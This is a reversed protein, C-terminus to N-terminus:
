RKHGRVNRGQLASTYIARLTRGVVETSRTDAHFARGSEGIRTALAPDELLQTIREALALADGVPVLLQTGNALQPIGGVPTSVFPRGASLAETLIMPMGENRSPLVIVRAKHLLASIEKASVPPAVTMGDLQPVALRTRPGVLMCTAAPRRASVMPWAQCLVDVGKRESIEGAFLVIEDADGARQSNRDTPVPNPVLTVRAEPVLRHITDLAEDSLCTVASARKLVFRVLRPRARAFAIFRSGHITAVSAHGRMNALVLVWGERIFSGGQSLHVHAIAGSPLRLTGITVGLVSLLFDKASGRARTPHFVTRDAGVDHDVLIEVVREIGGVRRIDPGFHHVEILPTESPERGASARQDDLAHTM